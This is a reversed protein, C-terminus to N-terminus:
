ATVFNNDYAKWNGPDKVIGCTIAGSTFNETGVTYIVGLYREMVSSPQIRWFRQYGAVLVSEALTGPMDQLTTASDLGANDDTVLAIQLTAAEGSSDLTTTVTFMLYLNEGNGIDISARAMDIVNTSDRTATLAAAEDFMSLKDLIM